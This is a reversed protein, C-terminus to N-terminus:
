IQNQNIIYISGDQNSYINDCGPNSEIIQNLTKNEQKVFIYNTNFESNIKQCINQKINGNSIEHWLWYKNESKLYMFTPDLGIIYKNKNNYYFLSPWDSWNDHFVIEGAPINDTAWASISEFQNLRYGTRLGTRMQNLNYHLIIPIQILLLILVILSILKHQKLIKKVPQLINKTNNYKLATTISLGSFLLSLPVFYEINRKSKITLFLFIITTIFLSWTKPNQRSLKIIFIAISVVLIIFIISEKAILSVPNFSYWEGGVEIINKYNYLGIQITQQWYFKLNTPFYPNIILGSIFGSIINALLKFNTKKFFQKIFILLPKQNQSVPISKLTHYLGLCLWYIIGIGLMIPWGGYLWVYLFCIIFLPWSWTKKKLFLLYIFLLIFILSIAPIKALNLRFIFQHSLLLILTFIFAYKIKLQRLLWYFLVIALSALITTSIKLAILPNLIKIIPTLLIHYLLHHDIYIQDLTTYPLWNFDTIIGTQNIIETIKAHYFSDPDPFVPSSNLWIFYSLIFIFLLIYIVPQSLWNNKQYTMMNSM